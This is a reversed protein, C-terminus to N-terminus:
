TFIPNPEIQKLDKSNNTKRKRRRKTKRKTKRGARLAVTMTVCQAAITTAEIKSPTAAAM